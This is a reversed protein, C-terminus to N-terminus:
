ALHFLAIAALMMAAALIRRLLVSTDAHAELDHHGAHAIAAGLAVSILGRTSQVINGFVVGISGFCAFLCLMGLLWAGAFPAAQRWAHRPENKLLPLFPLCCAGLFAYCLLTSLASAHFLRLSAFCAVLGRINLDSLSYGVCALLIWAISQGRLAGGTRNLVWAAAVALFVAAWQPASYTQHQWVSTIVALVVLKVGLLPSIRSADSRKLAMFLAAQGVAYFLSCALLPGAFARWDPRPTPLVLPLCIFSALGM